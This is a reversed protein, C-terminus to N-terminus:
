QRKVVKEQVTLFYRRDLDRLKGLREEAEQLTMEPHVRKWTNVEEEGRFAQEWTPFM